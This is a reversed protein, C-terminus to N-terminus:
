IKFDLTLIFYRPLLSNQYITTQFDSNDTQSYFKNDLLNKGSLWFEIWKTRQPKYKVEFDLFTFDDLNNTNPLYYDYNFTFLWFKSPKILIKFSNNLSINRNSDYDDSKFSITSYNFKNQFNVPLRFSTSLYFYANYNLSQNNRLESQNIVNKYNSHGFNSVHKITSNIFKIYKEVGINLSYNEINTPSQFLTYITYDNEIDVASLYTNKKNDYILGFNTSFSTFLDNFRYNLTYNQNQQLDLNFINKKIFRNNEAIFNTFLNEAEPSKEEYSGSLKFSSKSNLLYSINLTPIIVFSNEITNFGNNRDQYNQNINVVKLTPQFKFNEIFYTTSIESFISSKKYKNDNKFDPNIEINDESLSSNLSVDQINYGTIFTYKLKKFNGLLILKNSFYSKKFHSKQLNGGFSFSIPEINLEQPASNVSYLSIYQLAKKDDIKYTYQLKNKWFLNETNLISKFPSFGSQSVSNLSNIKENRFATEIELLSLKSTNYTLKLELQKNEPKKVRETLDNYNISESNFFTNNKELLYIKDRIFSVNTNLSLKQSFRYISNYNLAFQNNINARQTDFNSSFINEPIITKALLENNNIDELTANMSFYDEASNNMGVNNYSLNAFSKYKKSVSLLNIKLDNRPNNGSDFGSGLNGNGSIDTKGKKLKLNISVNESNEIGKLLPNKTYNDIAQVQEVMDVSINRTGMTYNNGFLDDGELQVSVVSKGRYKITGNAEVEMGPLKRILDEVKHETGDKYGNPNFTVTDEEVKYKEEKIVIEDLETAKKLLTFTFSYTKGKEPNVISDIISQYGFASVEIYINLYNKKLEISFEGDNNSKFFESILNKNESNKIIINGTIAQNSENIVKGKLNQSYSFNLVILLITFLIYTKKM